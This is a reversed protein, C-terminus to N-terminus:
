CKTYKEENVQAPNLHNGDLGAGKHLADGEFGYDFQVINDTSLYTNRVKLRDVGSLALSFSIVLDDSAFCDKSFHTKDSLQKMLDVDVLGARYAIAGFGEIVDCYSLPSDITIKETKCNKGDNNKTKPM